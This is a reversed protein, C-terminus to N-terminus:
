IISEIIILILFIIIFVESQDPKKRSWFLEHAVRSHNFAREHAPSAFENKKRTKNNYGM